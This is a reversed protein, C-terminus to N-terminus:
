ADAKPKTAAALFPARADADLALLLRVALAAVPTPGRAAFDQATRPKVGLVRGAALQNLGLAAIAERYEEATM